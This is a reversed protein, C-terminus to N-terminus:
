STRPLLRPAPCVLTDSPPQPTNLSIDARPPLLTDWSGQSGIRSTLAACPKAEAEARVRAWSYVGRKSIDESSSSARLGMGMVKSTTRSVTPLLHLSAQPELIDRGQGTRM